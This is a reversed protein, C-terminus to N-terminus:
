LCSMIDDYKWLKCYYFPDDNNLDDTMIYGEGIDEPNNDRVIKKFEDHWYPIDSPVEVVTDNCFEGDERFVVINIKM